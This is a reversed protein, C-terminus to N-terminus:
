SFTIAQMASTTSVNFDRVVAAWQAFDGDSNSASLTCALGCSLFTADNRLDGTFSVTDAQTPILLAAALAVTLSLSRGAIPILNLRLDAGVLKTLLSHLPM